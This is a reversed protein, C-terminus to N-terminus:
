HLLIAILAAINFGCIFYTVEDSAGFRILREKWNKEGM